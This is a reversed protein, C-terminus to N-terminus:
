KKTPTKLEIVLAHIETKGINENDHTVAENWRVEGAKTTMESTKGNSLTTKSTGGNLVYLIYEPHSHMGTKEGPKFKFDLVRVKDNDFLVKVKDPAVKAADQAHVTKGCM